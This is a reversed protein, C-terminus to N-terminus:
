MGVLSGYSIFKGSDKSNLGIFPDLRHLLEIMFSSSIELELRKNEASNGNLIKEMGFSSMVPHGNKFLTM